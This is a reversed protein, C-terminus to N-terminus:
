FKMLVWQPVRVGSDLNDQRAFQGDGRQDVLYYSVGHPPTVKLMYLRGNLRYQEVKDEGQKIITVQPEMSEDVMAPPEPLPELDKPQTGTGAAYAPLTTLCFMLTAITHRM